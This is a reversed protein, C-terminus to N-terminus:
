KEKPTTTEAAPDPRKAPQAAPTKPAEVKAIPILHGDALHQAADAESLTLIDGPAGNRGDPLSVPTDAVVKFQPDTSTM